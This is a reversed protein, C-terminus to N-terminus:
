CSGEFAEALALSALSRASLHLDEPNEKLYKMVISAIQNITVGNPPCIIVDEMKEYVGVMYGYCFGNSFTNDDQECYQVLSNGSVIAAYSTPSGLLMALATIMVLKKIM